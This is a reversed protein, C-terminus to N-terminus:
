DPGAGTQRTYQQVLGNNYENEETVAKLFDAMAKFFFVKRPTKFTGEFWITQNVELEAVEVSMPMKFYSTLDSSASLIAAVEFPPCPTSGVNTVAFRYIYTNKLEAKTIQLRSTVLEPGLPRVAPISLMVSNDGRNLDPLTGEEDAIISILNEGTNLLPVDGTLQTFGGAALGSVPIRKTLVAGNYFRIEFPGTNEYGINNVAIRVPLVQGAALEEGRYDGSEISLVLDVAESIGKVTIDVSATDSGAKNQAKLIWTGSSDPFFQHKGRLRAVPGIGPTISTARSRRVKWELEVPDGTVVSAPSSTFHEIGPVSDVPVSISETVTGATNTVTLTYVIDKRPKYSLRGFDANVEVTESDLSNTLTASSGGNAAWELNVAGGLALPNETNHDAKFWQIAPKKVPFVTLRASVTDHQNHAQLEFVTAEAIAIRAEGQAPLGAGVGNSISVSDASSVYWKLLYEQTDNRSEIVESVFYHICPYVVESQSYEANAQSLQNASVTITTIDPHLWGSVPRFEIQYSGPALGSATDGSNRWGFAGVPRWAAGAEVAEAPTLTVSLSGTDQQYQASTVTTEGSGILVTSNVPKRWGEIDSFVVTLSGEALGEVIEGSMYWQSDDAPRWRAGGDSATLPNIFVQLRGNRHEQFDARADGMVNNFSYKVPEFQRGAEEVAVTGSFGHDVAFQYEGSANTRTNQRLGTGSDNLTVLLGGVPKGDSIVSGSITHQLLEFTATVDRDTDLTMTLSTASETAGGSWGKFVSGEDPSATLTVRTGSDFQESSTGTSTSGDYTIGIDGQDASVSGAGNGQVAISLTRQPLTTFTDEGSYSTGASNIAYARVYYLTDPSLNQLTASFSGTGSGRSVKNDATTPVTHKAYVIGRETVAAGGNNDVSGSAAASRSEVSGISTLSVTALSAGTFDRTENQQLDGVTAESPTFGHDTKSPTITVASGREITFSYTGNNGTTTDATTSGTMAVNVDSIPTGSYDKITGNITYKSQRFTATLRRAQDMTVTLPNATSSGGPVDGSWGTFDVGADPSATLEVNTNEDFTDAATGTSASGDYSLSIAGPTTALTGSGDGTASLDLDYTKLTSFTNSSGYTTGKENTAFARFEYTTDPSLSGIDATYEGTGATAANVATYAGSTGNVRYEIGRESITGGGADTVNGGLTASSSTINASVSSTTVVAQAIETTFSTTTTANTGSGNDVTVTVTYTVNPSLGTAAATVTTDDTDSIPSEDATITTTSGDSGELKFTVTASVGNAKATASLDASNTTINAAAANSVTPTKTNTTFTQDNGYSTGLSNTAAVRYHYTQGPILSTATATVGTNSVGTVTGPTASITTGYSTDTGLEFSVTAEDGNANITGNLKASEEVVASAADTTASPADAPLTATMDSGTSTGHGNTAVARYHYTQGPQLGTVTANFATEGDGSATAPNGTVTAGYSTTLGYEFSLNAQAGNPDATGHFTVQGPTSSDTDLSNTTVTPASTTTTFTMDSGYTTGKSNVAVVRYHYTTGATLGSLGASVGSDTLASVPSQDAAITEGYSTDAGYEFSVTTSAGNSNVTGNLTVTELAVASAANTTAGPSNPAVTFTQDSGDTTGGSSTASVRYHYTQGPQLTTLSASVAQSGDGTIPSQAAAVTSGYSTTLGYEFTVTTSVTNPDVSGNLDVKNSGDDYVTAANTIAGPAEVATTFTQDAGTSTGGSNTGKIRYHYLTNSQLGTLSATVSTASTGSITGENISVSSGYSTDTGYEFVVTTSANNANVTGNLTASSSAISGASGTTVTPSIAATTFSKDAGYNTVSGQKGAARFHYTTNPQLGSVTEGFNGSNFANRTVPSTSFGYSTTTGYQFWTDTSSSYSNYYGNLTASTSGVSSADNTKIEAGSGINFDYDEPEGDYGTENEFNYSLYKTSFRLRSKGTVGSPVNFTFTITSPSGNPFEAIQYTGDGMKADTSDFSGNLNSDFWATLYYRDSSSYTKTMTVVATYTGAPFQATAINGTTFHTYTSKGSTQTVDVGNGYIRVSNIYGYSTSTSSMSNYAMLTHSYIMSLVFSVIVVSVLRLKMECRASAPPPRM